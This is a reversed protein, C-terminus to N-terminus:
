YTQINLIQGLITGLISRNTSTGYGYQNRDYYGDQYGREFGQQFYYRYVNRDVYTQYGFTGTRYISNNNWSMNRRGRLDYRGSQYGQRYGSNIARRLLDAGRQDVDYYSGNPNVRYKKHNRNTHSNANGNYYGQGNSRDNGSKGYLKAQKREFKEKAKIEKKINKDHKNNQANASLGTGLVAVLGFASVAALKKFYHFGM